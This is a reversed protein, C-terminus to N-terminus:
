PKVGGGKAEPPTWGLKILAERIAEDKTRVVERFLVERVGQFEQETELFVAGTQFDIGTKINYKMDSM